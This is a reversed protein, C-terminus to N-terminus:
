NQYSMTTKPALSVVKLMGQDPLCWFPMAVLIPVHEM